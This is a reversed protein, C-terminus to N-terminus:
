MLTLAAQGATLPATPTASRCTCTHSIPSTSRMSPSTLRMSPSPQALSTSPPPCATAAATSGCRGHLANYFVVDEDEVVLDPGPRALTVRDTFSLYFRTTDVWSLGDVDAGAPLGAAAASADWARSHATADWAYLDADDAAGAVGAPGVNGVTSYRMAGGPQPPPPPATVVLQMAATRTMGPGTATVTLM